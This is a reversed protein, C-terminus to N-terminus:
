IIYEKPCSLWGRIINHSVYKTWWDGSVGYWWCVCVCVCLHLIFFIYLISCERERIWGASFFLIYVKVYWFPQSIDGRSRVWSFTILKGSTQLLLLLSGCCCCSFQVDVYVSLWFSLFHCPVNGWSWMIISCLLCVHTEARSNPKKQFDLKEYKCAWTSANNSLHSLLLPHLFYVRVYIHLLKFHFIM